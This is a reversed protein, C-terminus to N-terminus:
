VEADATWEAGILSFGSGTVGLNTLDSIVTSLVDGLEDVTTSDANYIRDLTGSAITYTPFSGSVASTDQYVADFSLRGVAAASISATAALGGASISVVPTAEKPILHVTSRYTGSQMQSVKSYTGSEFFRRCREFELAPATPVHPLHVNSQPLLSGYIATARRLEARTGSVEVFFRVDSPESAIIDSLVTLRRFDGDIISDGSFVTSFSDSIGLRAVTGSTM